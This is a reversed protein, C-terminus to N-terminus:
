ETRRLAVAPQLRAARWGGIAGAIIAGVIALGVAVVIVELSLPATPHLTVTHNGTAFTRAFGAPASSFAGPSSGGFFGGGGGGPFGGGGSVGSPASSGLGTAGVTATLPGSIKTVVFAGLVGLGIGVAGGVIGQVLTEGMVQGVIRRSHWGIAKLTGFERVRRTVSAITLLVALVFAALLVAISLGLGLSNALNSATSLSGSINSAENSASTVTVSPLAKQIETQVASIDNATDATVYITNVDNSDGTLSQAESLPIYIDAGDTETVSIVGLVTFTTSSSSSSISITSGAKLSNQKAYASSVLALTQDSSGGSQVDTFWQSVVSAGSSINPGSLLGLGPESPDIGDVSFTSIGFGSGSSSPSASATATPTPTPTPTASAGPGFGSFTGTIHVSNLALAGTAGAVGKLNSISSVDSAAITTLGGASTLNDQAFSQGAQASSPPTGSFRFGGGTGATAPKTVTLDTGVGYLSSLVQGQADKIGSAYSTVTVVLGVGLALGIAVLAASRARRRLERGLYRFYL